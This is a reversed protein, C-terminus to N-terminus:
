LVKWTQCVQYTMLTETMSDSFRYSSLSKAMRDNCVITHSLIKAM